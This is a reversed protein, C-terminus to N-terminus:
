TLDSNAEIAANVLLKEDNSFTTKFRALRLRDLVIRESQQMLRRLHLSEVHHPVALFITPRVGAGLWSSWQPAGTEVIKREWAESKACTAQGVFSWLGARMDGWSLHGLMDAKEDQASASRIAADPDTPLLLLKGAEILAEPFTQRQRRLEGFNVTDLRDSRVCPAVLDEFVRTPDPSQVLKYAQALTIAWLVLYASSYPDVDDVALLRKGVFHFPYREGLIAQREELIAFISRADKRAETIQEESSETEDGSDESEAEAVTAWMERFQWDNDVIYDALDGESLNRGDIALKEVWDAVASLRAYKGYVDIDVVITGTM